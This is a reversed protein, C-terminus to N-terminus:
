DLDTIKNNAAKLSVLSDKYLNVLKSLEEGKLLNDSLELKQIPIEPLNDLSKLHVANVSLKRLAKFKNLYEKDVPKFGEKLQINDIILNEYSEPDMTEGDVLGLIQKEISPQEESM